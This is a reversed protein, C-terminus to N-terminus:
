IDQRLINTVHDHSAWAVGIFSNHNISQNISRATTVPDASPQRNAIIVPVTIAGTAPTSANKRRKQGAQSAATDPVLGSHLEACFAPGRTTVALLANM